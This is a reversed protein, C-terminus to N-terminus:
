SGIDTPEGERLWDQLIVVASAADRLKRRKRPSLGTDRLLEEAQKTTLREDQAVVSLGPFRERLRQMFARVAGARAGESGDMNFPLGVVLTDVDREDLLAAVHDLLEVSDGAAECTGVPHVAIRLADVVAFGTRKEGHDIGIAARRSSM